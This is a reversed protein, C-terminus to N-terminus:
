LANLFVDLKVDLFGEAGGTFFIYSNIILIVMLFICDLITRKYFIALYIFPIFVGIIRGAIPSIFYASLYLFLGVVAFEYCFKPFNFKSDVVGLVTRKKVFLIYLLVIMWFLFGGGGVGVKHDSYDQRIDFLVALFFFSFNICICVLLMIWNRKTFSWGKKKFFELLFYLFCLLLFTSHVLGALFLGLVVYKKNSTYSIIILFLALALGQRFTVLLLGFTQQQLLLMILLILSVKISNTLKYFYYNITICCIFVLAILASEENGFILLVIYNLVYFLPEYFLLGNEILREKRADMNSLYFLYAERDKFLHSPLLALYTSVALSFLFYVLRSLLKTKM